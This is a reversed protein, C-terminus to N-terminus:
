IDYSNSLNQDTPDPMTYFPRVAAPFKDIIYFDQSHKIAVIEGLLKEDETGIDEFDGHAAVETAAAGVASARGRRHVESGILAANGPGRHASAGHGRPVQVALM